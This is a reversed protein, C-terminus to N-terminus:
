KREFMNNSIIYAVKMGDPSFQAYRQKGKSSLAELKKADRFFIFNKEMTSHRYIAETETSLLIKKEDDSIEFSMVRIKQVSDKPIFENPHMLTDIAKGSAADYKVIANNATMAAYSKGDKMWKWGGASKPIYDYTKWVSELTVNQAFLIKTFAFIVFIFALLKKHM